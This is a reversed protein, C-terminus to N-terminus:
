KVTSKNSDERFWEQYAEDMSRIVYVFVSIMGDDLNCREGYAVIRSWPIPGVAWGFYRETSLDWFAKVYFEDGPLLDPEELYWQPPPKGM